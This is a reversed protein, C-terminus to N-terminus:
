HLKPGSGLDYHRYQGAARFGLRQFLPQAERTAQLTGVDLGIERGLQLAALTMATAVGRQRFSADTSVLYVGAVGDGVSLTATGVVRGDMHGAFRVLHDPRNLENAVVGAVPVTALRFSQAYADAFAAIEVPSRAYRIDLGVPPAVDPLRALDTAMIQLARVEVAGLERLGEAVRPDSDSGVWWTWPVDGFLRRAEDVADRLDWRDVRLVGNLLAHDIGSRYMQVDGDAHGSIDWGLWYKRCNALLAAVDQIVDRMTILM